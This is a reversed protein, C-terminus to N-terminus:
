EADDAGEHDGEGDGEGRGEEDVDAGADGDVPLRHAEIPEIVNGTAQQLDEISGYISVHPDELPEPFAERRWDVYVDHEPFDVGIGLVDGNYETEDDPNAIVQFVDVGYGDGEEKQDAGEGEGEGEDEEGGVEYGAFELLSAFSDGVPEDEGALSKAIEIAQDRESEDLEAKVSATCIAHASQEGHGDEMVQRVCQDYAEGKQDPDGRLKSWKEKMFSYWADAVTEESM